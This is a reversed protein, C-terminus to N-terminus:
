LASMANSIRLSIPTTFLWLISTQTPTCSRSAVACSPQKSGPRRCHRKFRPLPFPKLNWSTPGAQWRNPCTKMLTFKQSGTLLFQGNRTRNADVAVKLHRFLGPAYQVEDILVPPPHREFFTGPEKEAPEAERRPPRPLCVCTEPVPTSIYINQRDTQSRDARGRAADERLTGLPTRCRTSDVYAFYVFSDCLKCSNRRGVHMVASM